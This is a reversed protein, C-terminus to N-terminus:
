KGRQKKRKERALSVSLEVCRRKPNRTLVCKKKEKRKERQETYEAHDCV